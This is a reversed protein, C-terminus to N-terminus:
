HLLSEGACNDRCERWSGPLPERAEDLITPCQFTQNRYECKTKESGGLMYPFQCAKPAEGTGGKTLCLENTSSEDSFISSLTVIAFASKASCFNTSSYKIGAISIQCKKNCQRWENSNPTGRKRCWSTGDRDALCGRVNHNDMRTHPHKFPFDCLASSLGPDLSSPLNPRKESVLGFIDM